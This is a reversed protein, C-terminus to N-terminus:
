GHKEELNVPTLLFSYKKLKLIKIKVTNQSIKIKAKLAKM